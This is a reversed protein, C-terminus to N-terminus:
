LPPRQLEQGCVVEVVIGLLLRIGLGNGGTEFWGVVACGNIFQMANSNLLHYGQSCFSITKVM